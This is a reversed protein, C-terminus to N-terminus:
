TRPDKKLERQLWWCIARRMQAFFYARNQWEPTKEQVLPVYAENVLATSQISHDPRQHWLCQRAVRRVEIYVLPILQDQAKRDGRHWNGLLRSIQVSSGPCM